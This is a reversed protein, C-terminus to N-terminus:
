LLGGSTGIRLWICGTEWAIEKFNVSINSEWRRKPRGFPTKGDPKGVFYQMCKEGRGDTNCAWVGFCVCVCVYVFGIIKIDGPSHM